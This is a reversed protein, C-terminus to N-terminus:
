LREVEAIGSFFGRESVPAFVEGSVAFHPLPALLMGTGRLARAFLRDAVVMAYGRSRVLGILDNEGKLLLDGEQMLGQDMRFFSAVDVTAGSRAALRARVENALIQQHMVLVRSRPDLLGALVCISEDLASVEPCTGELALGVELVAGSQRAIRRAVRCGAPSVALLRPTELAHLFDQLGGGMGYTVSTLGRSSLRASLARASDAAPLDLPTAGWVGVDCADGNQEALRAVLTAAPTEEGREGDRRGREVLSLVAEYAKAEGREYLEMGTTGLWLAAIGFRKEVVHCLAQYDTAIVSPVPTGVLAVFAPDCAEIADGLKGLLRDDRGLIADMDRLGASFVASRTRAWRPEDFGCINGACGGADCVVIMGGLEFLVSVAGSQDPSFPSLYRYLGRM